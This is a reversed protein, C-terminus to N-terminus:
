YASRPTIEVMESYDRVLPNIIFGDRGGLSYREKLHDSNRGRSFDEDRARVAIEGNPGHLFVEFSPVRHAAGDARQGLACKKLFLERLVTLPELEDDDLVDCLVARKILGDLANVRDRM